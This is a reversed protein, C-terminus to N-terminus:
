DQYPQNFETPKSFGTSNLLPFFHKLILTPCHHSSRM